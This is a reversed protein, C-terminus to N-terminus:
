ENRSGGGLRYYLVDDADLEYVRTPEQSGYTAADIRFKEAARRHSDIKEFAEQMRKFALPDGYNVVLDVRTAGTVAFERFEVKATHKLFDVARRYEDNWFNTRKVHYALEEQAAAAIDRATFKFLHKSRESM